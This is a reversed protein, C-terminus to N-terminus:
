IKEIIRLQASRARRNDKVETWTPRIAHKTILKGGEEKAVQKCFEKVIRAELSHFTIIAMRGGSRLAVLGKALGERLADLEDNVAIRLAQFTKTAPHIKKRKYWAPVASEIVRVLDFTTEIPTDRRVKVIAEAIASAHVEEGYGVLVNEIDAKSWFNVIDKATLKNEKNEGMTMLLPEDYMFSFGRGSPGFQDSHVGIDFLIRDVQLISLSSLVTDLHRFNEQVLAVECLLSSLTERAKEISSADQDLGIVRGEKGLVNGIALAHGGSGVTADLYTEGPLVALGTITEQLLVPTHAM